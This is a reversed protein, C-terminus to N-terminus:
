KGVIAVCRARPSTSPGQDLAVRITIESGVPYKSLRSVLSGDLVYVQLSPELAERKAKPSIIIFTQNHINNTVENVYGTLEVDADKHKEVVAVPNKANEALLAALDEKHVPNPKPKLAGACSLCLAAFAVVATAFVPRM